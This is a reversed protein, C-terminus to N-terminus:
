FPIDDDLNIEEDTSEPEAETQYKDDGYRPSDVDMILQTSHLNTIMKLAQEADAVRKDGKKFAALVKLAVNKADATLYAEAGNRVAYKSPAPLVPIRGKLFLKRGTAIQPAITEALKNWARCGIWLPARDKDRSAHNAGSFNLVTKGSKTERLAVGKGVNVEVTFENWAGAM